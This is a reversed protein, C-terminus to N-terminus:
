PVVEIQQHVVQQKNVSQDNFKNVVFELTVNGKLSFISHVDKIQVFTPVTNIQYIEFLEPNIDVTVGLKQLKQATKVFSDGVLGRMVLIANHKSAELFLSKLSSESMSFSVFILIQSSKDQQTWHPAISKVCRKNANAGLNFPQSPWCKQSSQGAFINSVPHKNILIRADKQIQEAQQTATAMDNRSPMFGETALVQIAFIFNIITLRYLM